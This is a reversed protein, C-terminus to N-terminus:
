VAPFHCMEHMDVIDISHEETITAGEDVRTYLIGEVVLVALLVADM